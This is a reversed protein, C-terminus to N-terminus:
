KKNLISDLLQNEALKKELQIKELENKKIDIELRDLEAEKKIALFYKPIGIIIPVLIIGLVISTITGSIM